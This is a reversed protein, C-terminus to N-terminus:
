TKEKKKKEKILATLINPFCGTLAFFSLCSFNGETSKDPNTDYEAVFGQTQLRCVFMYKPSWYRCFLFVPYSLYEFSWYAFDVRIQM